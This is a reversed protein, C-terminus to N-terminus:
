PSGLHVSTSLGTGTSGASVWMGCCCEQDTKNTKAANQSSGHFRQIEKRFIATNLGTIWKNRSFPSGNGM